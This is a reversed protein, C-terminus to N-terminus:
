LRKFSYPVRDGSFGTKTFVLGIVNAKAQRLLEITYGMSTRKTKSLQVVFLVSDVIQSLIQADANPVAAPADIIILDVAEKMEEHLDIMAQSSLTEASFEAMKGATLVQLGQVEGPQLAEALTCEGALVDSLGPSELLKLRRHLAPRRLNADVLIVKKNDLAMAIALNHALESKGEGAGSSTILISQSTGTATNLLVNTRLVRYSERLRMAAPTIDEKGGPLALTTRRKPLSPLHGIPLTGAIAYAEDVTNVRDDVRDKFSAIPFALILGVLISLALYLAIIPRVQRPITDQEIVTVSNRVSNKRLQLDEKQRTLAQVIAQRDTLDRTLRSYDKQAVNFENLSRRSEALNLNRETVSAQASQVAAKADTIKDDYIQISPNKTTIKTDQDVPMAQLVTQQRTIEADVEKVQLSDEYYSVLLSERKAKLNEIVQKQQERLSINTQSTPTQLKAPLEKRATVLADEVQLASALQSIAARADAEAHSVRNSREPGDVAPDGVQTKARYASLKNEIESLHNREDSLRGDIFELATQLTGQQNIRLYDRYSIPLQQGFLVANDKSNSDVDINIVSTLGVQRVVVKPDREEPNSDGPTLISASRVSDQWLRDSQLIEMQSLIDDSPNPLTIAALPDNPSSQPFQQTKGEVTIRTTYRYVPQTAIIALAGLGICLAMTGLIVWKQRNLLNAIERLPIDTQQYEIQPRISM